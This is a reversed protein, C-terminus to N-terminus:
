FHLFHMLIYMLVCKSVGENLLNTDYFRSHLKYAVFGILVM